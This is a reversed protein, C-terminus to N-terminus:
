DILVSLLSPFVRSVTALLSHGLGVYFPSNHVYHQIVSELEQRSQSGGM